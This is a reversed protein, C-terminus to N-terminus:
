VSARQGLNRLKASSTKPQFHRNAQPLRGRDRFSGAAETDCLITADSHLWLFSAPFRTTVQPQMLREFARRKRPGSVLLLTKRSRLIDGMGLTLGKTPKKALPKLLPHKQSSKALRAVHVGPTFEAAPENMAVHGNVGLGLICIDIPGNEALWKAVRGCERELDEADSQFGEYRRSTIRLPELLKKQLDAKCLAANEAPLGAWEDVQLVRLGAFLRPQTQYRAALLEYTRTPTGGASACLLLNPNRKLETVILEAALRSMAEYSDAIDIKLCTM